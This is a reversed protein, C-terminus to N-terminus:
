RPEGPGRSGGSGWRDTRAARDGSADGTGSRGSSDRPPAGSADDAAKGDRDSIERMEVDIVTIERGPPDEPGPGSAAGRDRFRGGRPRAGLKAALTLGLGIVLGSVLTFMALVIAVVAGFVIVAIAVSRVLLRQLWRIM